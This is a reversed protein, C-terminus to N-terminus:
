SNMHEQTPNHSGLTSSKGKAQPHHKSLVMNSAAAYITPPKMERLKIAIVRRCMATALKLLSSPSFLKLKGGGWFARKRLKKNATRTASLPAVFGHRHNNKDHDNDNQHVPCRGGRFSPQGGTLSVSSTLNDCSVAYGQRRCAGKNELFHLIKVM